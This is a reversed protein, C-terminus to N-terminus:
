PDSDPWSGGTAALAQKGSLPRKVSATVRRKTTRLTKACWNTGAAAVAPVMLEVVEIPRGLLNLPDSLRDRKATREEGASLSIM